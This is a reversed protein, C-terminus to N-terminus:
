LEFFREDVLRRLFNKVGEWVGSKALGSINSKEPAAVVVVVEEGPNKLNLQAKAHYEVKEPADQEALRRSLDRKRAAIATLHAEAERVEARLALTARTMRVAGVGIVSAALLLALSVPWSHKIPLRM